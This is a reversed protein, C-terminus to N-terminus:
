MSDEDISVRARYTVIQWCTRTVATVTATPRDAAPTIVRCITEGSCRSASADAIAGAISTVSPYAAVSATVGFTRSILTAGTASAFFAGVCSFAGM